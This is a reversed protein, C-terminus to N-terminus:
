FSAPVYRQLFPQLKEWTDFMGLDHFVFLDDKSVGSAIAERLEEMPLSTGSVVLDIEPDGFVQAIERVISRCRKSNTSSIFSHHYLRAAQQAEDLGIIFNSGPFYEERIDHLRDVLINLARPSANPLCKNVVWLFPHRTRKPSLSDSQFLLWIRKHKESLKGDVKIALKLFLKFVAIRAAMITQLHRWAIRKNLDNQLARKGPSVSRLDSVWQPDQGMKDLADALDPSASETSIRRQLM